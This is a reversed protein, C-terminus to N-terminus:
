KSRDNSRTPAFKLVDFDNSVVYFYENILNSVLSEFIFIAPGTPRCIKADNQPSVIDKMEIVEHKDEIDSEM